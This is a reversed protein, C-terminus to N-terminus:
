GARLRAAAEIEAPRHEYGMSDSGDYEDRYWRATVSLWERFPTTAYGLDDGARASSMVFRTLPGYPDAYTWDGSTAAGSPVPVLEPDLGLAGAAVTVLDHLTVIERQAMNYVRHEARDNELALLYGRALDESYVHTFAQRGGETLLLPGGDLLRQLYFWFRLTTDDPGVVIPPRIITWSLDDRGMIEREAELKGMTYVWARSGAEDPSPAFGFDVDDEAYPPYGDTTWYMAGTSTFIYRGASDGLTDLLTSVDAATYGINDIVADFRRARLAPASSAIAARDGPLHEVRDWWAPQQNGRSFVTVAHGAALLHSVISKGFFSTGGIVLVNM